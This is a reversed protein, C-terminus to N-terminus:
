ASFVTMHSFLTKKTVQSLPYTELKSFLREITSTSPLCSAFHILVMRLHQSHWTPDKNTEYRRTRQLATGWAEINSVGNAKEAKALPLHRLYQAILEEPQCGFMKALRLLCDTQSCKRYHHEQPHEDLNFASFSMLADCYPWEAECVKIAMWFWAQMRALCRQHLEETCSGGM